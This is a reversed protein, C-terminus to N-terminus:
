KSKGLNPTSSTKKGGRIKFFGKGFSSRAKRSGFHDDGTTAPLTASSSIPPKESIKNPEESAHQFSIFYGAMHSKCTQKRHGVELTFNDNERIILTKKVKKNNIRDLHDQSDTKTTDQNSFHCIDICVKRLTASIIIDPHHCTM